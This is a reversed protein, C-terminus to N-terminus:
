MLSRSFEYKQTDNQISVRAPDDSPCQIPRQFIFQRQPNQSHGQGPAHCTRSQHMVGVPARLVGAAVM